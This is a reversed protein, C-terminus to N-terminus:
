SVSVMYLFGWFSEWEDGGYSPPAKQYQPLIENVIRDGLYVVAILRDFSGKRMEDLRVRKNLVLEDLRQKAENGLCLELEPANINSLRISQDGVLVLTDGDLVREVMFTGPEGANRLRQFFYLNLLISPVFLIAVLYKTLTKVNIGAKGKGRKM